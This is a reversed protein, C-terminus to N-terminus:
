ESHQSVLAHLASRPLKGVANRPLKDVRHLPRPLFVPDLRLRLAALLAARDFKEMVVFATLRGGEDPQFFVGDQVGPVCLLTVSGGSTSGIRRRHSPKM